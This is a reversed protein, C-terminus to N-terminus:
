AVDARERQAQRQLRRKLAKREWLDQGGWVGATIAPRFNLAFELCEQKVQCGACIEAARLRDAQDFSFFLRDDHTLCAAQNRWTRVAPNAPAPSSKM